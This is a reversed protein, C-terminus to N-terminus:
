GSGGTSDLTSPSRANRSAAEAATTGEGIIVFEAVSRLTTIVGERFLPHDDIVVIHITDSM